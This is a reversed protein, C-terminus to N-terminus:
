KKEIKEIILNFEDNDKVEALNRITPISLPIEGGGLKFLIRKGGRCVCNIEKKL